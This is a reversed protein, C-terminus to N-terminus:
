TDSPGPGYAMTDRCAQGAACVVSGQAVQNATAEYAGTIRFGM